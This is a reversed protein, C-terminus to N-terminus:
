KPKRHVSFNSIQFNNSNCHVFIPNLNSQPSFTAPRVVICCSCVRSHDLTAFIQCGNREMHKSFVRLDLHVRPHHHRRGPPPRLVGVPAFRSRVGSGARRHLVKYWNERGAIKQFLLAGPARVKTPFKQQPPRNEFCM